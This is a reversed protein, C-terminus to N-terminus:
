VSIIEKCLESRSAADYDRLIERIRSKLSSHKLEFRLAIQEESDGLMLRELIERRLQTEALCRGSRETGWDSLWRAQLLFSHFITADSPSFGEKSYLLTCHYDESARRFHLLTQLKKRYVGRYFDHQPVISFNMIPLPLPFDGNFSFGKLSCYRGTYCREAELLNRLGRVLLNRKINLPIKESSVESLMSLIAGAKNPDIETVPKLSSFKM